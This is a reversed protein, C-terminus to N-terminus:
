RDSREIQDLVRALANQSMLRLREYDKFGKVYYRTERRSVSERSGPVLRFVSLEIEYSTEERNWFFHSAILLNIGNMNMFDQISRQEEFYYERYFHGVNRQYAERPKLADRCDFYRGKYQRCSLYLPSVTRNYRKSRRVAERYGEEINIREHVTLEPQGKREETYVPVIGVVYDDNCGSIFFAIILLLMIIATRIFTRASSSGGSPNLLIASLTQQRGM